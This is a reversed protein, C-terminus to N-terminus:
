AQGEQSFIAMQSPAGTAAEEPGIPMTRVSYGHEDAISNAWAAFESRTWEFRHDRHRFRGAPLSEFNINYEANPTTVVVTGPKAQKFVVHEMARLRPPDLHEIVEVLAAADYGALRKDVYMLSGHILKIRERQLEPLRNLHLRKEARELARYSVDMGTIQKFAPEAMLKKLLKGEGCGLDIVRSAKCSKLVALVTGLRQEHLSISKEIAEEEGQKRDTEQDLNNQDEELLQALAERSLSRQHSLYRTVIAQKKPHSPLWTEGRRLLKEIEDQNVWYHKDNDLVPIVVYLHNLLESLRCTNRLLVTFYESQGWEPFNEDLVTNNASVEYGLPEFLEKLFEIGSACAVVAIKAELPIATEALEQREKSRGNLATGFVDSIAVSMFSSAAYPRDNVYQGLSFDLRQTRKVGRVLKVPDVDLLLAVTCRAESVEPYFVHAKGFSLEFTQLNAPNKHLLYGLDSAPSHTTTITLLM